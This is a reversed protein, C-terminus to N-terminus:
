PSVLALIVYLALRTLSQLPAFRDSPRFGRLARGSAWFFLVFFIIFFSFFYLLTQNYWFITRFKRMLVMLILFLILMLFHIYTASIRKSTHLVRNGKTLAREIVMSRESCLSSLPSSLLSHFGPIAIVEM